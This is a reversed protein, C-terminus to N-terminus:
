IYTHIDTHIYSGRATTNCINTLWWTSTSFWIMDDPLAAVTGLGQAMGGAQGVANLGYVRMFM